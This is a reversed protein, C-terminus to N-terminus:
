RILLEATPRKGRKVSAPNSKVQRLEKDKAELQRRMSELDRRLQDIKADKRAMAQQVAKLEEETRSAADPVSVASADSKVQNDMEASALLIRDPRTKEAGASAMREASTPVAPKTLRTYDVAVTLLDRQGLAVTPEAQVLRGATEPIFSM